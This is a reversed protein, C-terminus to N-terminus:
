KKKATAPPEKKVSEATVRRAMGTAELTELTDPHDPDLDYTTGEPREIGNYTHWRLSVVKVTDTM